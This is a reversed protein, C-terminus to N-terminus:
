IVEIVRRSGEQREFAMDPRLNRMEESSDEEEMMMNERIKSRLKGSIKREIARCVIAV